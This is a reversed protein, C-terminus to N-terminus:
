PKAKHEIAPNATKAPTPPCILKAREALGNSYKVLTKLTIMEMAVNDGQMKTMQLEETMVIVADALINSNKLMELAKTCNALDKRSVDQTSEQALACSVFLLSICRM